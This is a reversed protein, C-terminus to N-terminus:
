FLSPTQLSYLNYTPGTAITSGKFWWVAGKKINIESQNLRLLHAALEGLWPQHGVILLDLRGQHNASIDNITKLVAKLSAGPALTDFTTFDNSLAQATQKARLATSSVILTNNPLHHSLWSAIKQAQQHGKKSLPRDIDAAVDDSLPLAEAHRWLLINRYTPTLM